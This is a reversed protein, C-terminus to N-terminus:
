KGIRNERRFYSDAASVDSRTRGGADAPPTSYLADDDDSDSGPLIPPPNRVHRGRHIAAWKSAVAAMKEHETAPHLVLAVRRAGDDNLM